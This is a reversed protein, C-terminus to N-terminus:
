VGRSVSICTAPRMGRQIQELIELLEPPTCIRPIEPTFWYKEGADAIWEVATTVVCSAVFRVNPLPAGSDRIPNTALKAARADNKELADRAQNWRGSVYKPSFTSKSTQSRAKCECVVLTDGVIVGLDIEIEKGDIFTVTQSLRWIAADALSAQVARALVREFEHGRLNGADGSVKGLLDTLARIASATVNFDLVLLDDGLEVIPRSDSVNSTDVLTADDHTRTLFGAAAEIEEVPIAERQASDSFRSYLENKSCMLFALSRLRHGRRFTAYENFGAASVVRLVLLAAEPRFRMRNIIDARLLEFWPLLLDVSFPHLAFTPVYSDSPGILPPITGLGGIAVAETKLAGSWLNQGENKGALAIWWRGRGYPLVGPFPIGAGRFLNQWRRLRESQVQALGELERTPMRVEWGDATPKLEGGYAIRRMDVRCISGIRALAATYLMSEVDYPKAKIFWIDGEFHIDEHGYNGYRAISLEILRADQALSDPAAHDRFSNLALISRFLTLWFPVSRVGLRAALEGDIDTAIEGIIDFPAKKSARIRDRFENIRVDLNRRVVQNLDVTQKLVEFLPIDVPDFAMGNNASLLSIEPM